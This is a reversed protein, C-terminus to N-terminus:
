EYKKWLRKKLTEYDPRDILRSAKRSCPICRAAAVLYEQSFSTKHCDLLNNDFM